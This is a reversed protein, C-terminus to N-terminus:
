GVSPFVLFTLWAMFGEDSMYKFTGLSSSKFTESTVSWYKSNEIMRVSLVKRHYNLHVDELYLLDSMLKRLKLQSDGANVSIDQLLHGLLILNISYDIWPQYYKSM